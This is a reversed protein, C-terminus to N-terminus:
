RERPLRFLRCSLRLKFDASSGVPYLWAPRHRGADVLAIHAKGRMGPTRFDHSLALHTYSDAASHMHRVNPMDEKVTGGRTSNTRRFM